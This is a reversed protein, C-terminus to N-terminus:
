SLLGVRQTPMCSRVAVVRASIILECHVHCRLHTMCGSSLMRRICTKYRDVVGTLIEWAIVVLSSESVATPHVGDDIDRDTPSITSPLDSERDPEFCYPEVEMELPTSSLCVYRKVPRPPYLLQFPFTTIM